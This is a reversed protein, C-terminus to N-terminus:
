HIEGNKKRTFSFMKSITGGTCITFIILDLLRSKKFFFFIYQYAAAFHVSLLQM